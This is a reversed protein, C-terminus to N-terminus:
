PPTPDESHVTYLYFEGDQAVINNVFDLASQGGGAAGRYRTNVEIWELPVIDGNVDELWLNDLNDWQQGGASEITTSTGAGEQVTFRIFQDARPNWNNPVHQGFVAFGPTLPNNHFGYITEGPTIEGNGILMANIKSTPTPQLTVLDAALQKSSILKPTGQMASTGSGHTINITNEYKLMYMVTRAYYEALNDEDIGGDPLEMDGMIWKVMAPAYHVQKSNIAQLAETRWALITALM